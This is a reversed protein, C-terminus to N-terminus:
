RPVHTIVTYARYQALPDSVLDANPAASVLMAAFLAVVFAVLLRNYSHM